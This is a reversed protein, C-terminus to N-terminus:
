ACGGARVAPHPALTAGHATLEVSECARLTVCWRTEEGAHRLELAHPGPARHGRLRGDEGVQLPEGALSASTEPVGPGPPLDPALVLAGPLPLDALAATEGPDLPAAGRDPPREYVSVVRGPGAPAPALLQRAAARCRRDDPRAALEALLASIAPDCARAREGAALLAACDPGPAAAADPPPAACGALASAVLLRLWTRPAPTRPAAPTPTPDPTRDRPGTVERSARPAATM